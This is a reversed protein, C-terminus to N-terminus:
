RVAPRRPRVLRLSHRPDPQDGLLGRHVRGGNAPVRPMGFTRALRDSEARALRMIQRQEETPEPPIFEGNSNPMVDVPLDERLEPWWRKPTMDFENRHSM